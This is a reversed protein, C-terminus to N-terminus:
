EGLGSLRLRAAPTTAMILMSLFNDQVQHAAEQDPDISSVRFVMGDPIRGTLTYRLEVFKGQWRQVATDGVMIWYTVPEVRMGKRALLRRIPLTGAKTDLRTTVENELSFGQAVYCFEPEHPKVTGRQEPVYAVSLMVQYGDSNAYIRELVQGYADDLGAQMQPDVLRINHRPQERWDGFEGPILSELSISPATEAGEVGNRILSAGVAASMMMVAIVFGMRRSPTM